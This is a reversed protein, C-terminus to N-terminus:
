RETQPLSSALVQVVEELTQGRQRTEPTEKGLETGEVFRYVDAAGEFMKPTLGLAGFTAAIEEMEGAWRYAKPPMGPVSRSLWEVMGGQSSRLESRLTEGLGLAEGAVLLETALATVGKTLAGYCMKLGSAQGIAEGIVRVDLGYDRLRAFEAAHEGSAYFKPGEPALRGQGEM